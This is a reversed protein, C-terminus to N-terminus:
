RWVFWITTGNFPVNVNCNLKWSINHSGDPNATIAPRGSPSCVEGVNKTLVVNWPSSNVLAQEQDAAQAINTPLPPPMPPMPDTVPITASFTFVGSSEINVPTSQVAEQGNSNLTKGTGAPFYTIPGTVATKTFNIHQHNQAVGSTNTLIEAIGFISFCSLLIALGISLKHSLVTKM